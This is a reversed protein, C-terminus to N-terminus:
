GVAEGVEGSRVPHDTKGEVDGRLSTDLHCPIVKGGNLRRANGSAAYTLGLPALSAPYGGVLKSAGATKAEALEWAEDFHIQAAAALIEERTMKSGAM